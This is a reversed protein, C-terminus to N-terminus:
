DCSSGSVESTKYSMQCAHCAWGLMVVLGRYGPLGAVLFQCISQNGSLILLLFVWEPNGSVFMHSLPPVVRMSSETMMEDRFVCHRWARQWCFALMAFMLADTLAILCACVIHHGIWFAKVHHAMLNDHKLFSFRRHVYYWGIIGSLFSSSSVRSFMHGLRMTPMIVPFAASFQFLLRSDKMLM